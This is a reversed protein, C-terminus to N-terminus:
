APPDNEIAQYARRLLGILQALEAATLEEEIPGEQAVQLAAMEHLQAEGAPTLTLSNRRRDGPYPARAALGRRELEDVLGVVGSKSMGTTLALDTQSCHPNAHILTLVSLSGPPLGYSALATQSRGTLAKSLLLILPGVSSDFLGWSLTRGRGPKAGGTKSSM